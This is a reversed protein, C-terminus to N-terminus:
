ANHNIGILKLLYRTTATKEQKDLVLIYSVAALTLAYLLFVVVVRIFSMEIYNRVIIPILTSLLISIGTFGIVKVIGAVYFTPILRKIIYLTNIIIVCFGIIEIYYGFFADFGLWYFLCIFLPMILFITGNIYSLAKINGNAHVAANCVNIILPLFSQLIIVRLFGVSYAPVEGLWFNLIYTAEMFCPVGIIAVALLTFKLSNQMVTQMEKINGAAYQKIIQPKFAIAINTTLGLIMGNITNALGVAANYIVSFFINIAYILGQNNVTVCINGYLDLGSYKLISILTGKNLKRSFRSEPFKYICYIRNVLVMILSTGTLLFSYVILKDFSSAMLMYVIVLKLSVNLIEFYAYVNMKEYAMIMATYPVQTVNLASSFISCQLVWFAANMREAPINLINYLFWIGFTEGVIIVLIAILIHIVLSSSFVDKVKDANGTGIEYTIFRSTAGAMAASLFGLFGLIGGVVGYIGYNIDGLQNFVIRSTYLGVLTALVMRITLMTANKTIRNNNPKGISKIQGM